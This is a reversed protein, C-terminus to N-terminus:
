AEKKLSYLTNGPWYWDHRSKSPIPIRESKKIGLDECDRITRSM